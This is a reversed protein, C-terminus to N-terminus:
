ERDPWDNLRGQQRDEQVEAILFDLKGNAADLDMAADWRANDIQNKTM